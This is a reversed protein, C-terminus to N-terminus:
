LRYNQSNKCCKQVEGPRTMYKGLVNMPFNAHIERQVPAQCLKHQRSFDRLVGNTWKEDFEFNGRVSRLSIWINTGLWMVGKWHGEIDSSPMGHHEYSSGWFTRFQTNYGEIKTTKTVNKSKKPGPWIKEWFFGLFNSIVQTTARTSSVIQTAEFLNNVGWKNM